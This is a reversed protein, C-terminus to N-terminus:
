YFIITNKWIEGKYWIKKINLFGFWFLFAQTASYLCLAFLMLLGFLEIYTGKIEQDRAMRVHIEM